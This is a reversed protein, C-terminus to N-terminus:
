QLAALHIVLYVVVSNACLSSANFRRPSSVSEDARSAHGVKISGVQESCEKRWSEFRLLRWEM